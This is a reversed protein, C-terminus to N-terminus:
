VDSHEAPLECWSLGGQTNKLQLHGYTMIIIIIIIIAITIVIVIVIVIIITIVIVIILRRGTNSCLVTSSSPTLSWCTSSTSETYFLSCKKGLFNPYHPVLPHKFHCGLLNQFYLPSDNELFQNITLLTLLM